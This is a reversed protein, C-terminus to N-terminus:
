NVTTLEGAAAGQFLGACALQVECAGVGKCATQSHISASHAGRAAARQGVRARYGYGTTRVEDGAGCVGNTHQAVATGGRDVGHLCHSRQGSGIATRGVQICVQKGGRATRAGARHDVLCAAHDVLDGVDGGVGGDGVVAREIDRALAGDVGRAQM